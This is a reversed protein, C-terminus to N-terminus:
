TSEETLLSEQLYKQKLTFYLGMQVYFVLPIICSELVALKINFSVGPLHQFLCSLLFTLCSVPSADDVPIQEAALRDDEVNQVSIEQHGNRTQNTTSGTQGYNALQQEMRDEKECERQLNFVCDPLLLFLAPRYLYLSLLVPFLPSEYWRSSAPLKVRLGCRILAANPRCCRYDIVTNGTDEDKVIMAVCVVDKRLSSEGSVNRSVSNLLAKGVVM